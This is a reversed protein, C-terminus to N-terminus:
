RTPLTLAPGTADAPVAALQTLVHTMLLVRRTIEDSREVAFTDGDVTVAFHPDRLQDAPEIAVRWPRDDRVEGARALFLLVGMVSRTQVEDFALIETGTRDRIEFGDQTARVDLSGARQQRALAPLDDLLASEPDAITVPLLLEVPWGAALMQGIRPLGIPDLFQRVYAAGRVPALTVTPAFQTTTSAQAGPLLLGAIGLSGGSMSAGVTQSRNSQVVVSQVDLFVPAELLRLRVVNGVLQQMSAQSLATGYDLHVEPMSSPATKPACSMAMLLVIRASWRKM